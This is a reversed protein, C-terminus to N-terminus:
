VDWTLTVDDGAVSAVLNAPDFASPGAVWDDRATDINAETFGTGDLIWFESVRGQFPRDDSERNGLSINLLNNSGSAGDIDATAIDNLWLKENGSDQIWQTVRVWAAFTVTTAGYLHVPGTGDGSMLLFKDGSGADDIGLINKDGPVGSGTFAGNHSWVGQTTTTDEPYLRLHWIHNGTVATGWNGIFRTGAGPFSIYGGDATKYVVDTGAQRALHRGAGSQDPILVITENDVAGLTALGSAQYGAYDQGQLDTPPDVEQAATFPSKMMRMGSFRFRNNGANLNSYDMELVLGSIAPDGSFASDPIQISRIRSAAFSIATITIGPSSNTWLTTTGDTLRITDISYGTANDAYSGFWVWFGKKDGPGVSMDFTFTVTGTALSSNQTFCNDSAFPWEDIATHDGTNMGTVANPPVFTDAWVFAM